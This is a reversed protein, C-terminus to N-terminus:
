SLVIVDAVPSVLYKRKSNVENCLFRKRLKKGKKLKKSSGTLTFITNEPIDELHIIKEQKEKKDFVRLTKLLQTDACSSAAPNRLYNNLALVVEEPFIQKGIYPQILERFENKWEKGHPKAKRRYKEWTSLHALEHILTLLFSYKNLDNNISIRHGRGNQPSRYDGLKTYRKGTIKVVVEHKALTRCIDELSEGPLYNALKEKEAYGPPLNATKAISHDTGPKSFKRKADPLLKKQMNGPQLIPFDFLSLQNHM